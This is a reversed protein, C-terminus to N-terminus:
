CGIFTNSPPSIKKIASTACIYIIEKRESAKNNSKKFNVHIKFFINSSYCTKFFFSIFYYLKYTMTLFYAM